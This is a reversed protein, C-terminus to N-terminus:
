KRITPLPSLADWLAYKVETLPVSPSYLRLAASSHALYPSRYRFSPKKHPNIIKTM